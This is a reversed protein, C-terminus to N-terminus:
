TIRRIARLYFVKDVETENRSPHPLPDNITPEKALFTKLLIGLRTRALEVSNVVLSQNTTSVLSRLEEMPATVFLSWLVSTMANDMTPEEDALPRMMKGCLMKREEVEEHPLTQIPKIVHRPESTVFKRLTDLVGSPVADNRTFSDCLHSLNEM